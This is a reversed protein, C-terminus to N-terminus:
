QKINKGEEMEDLSAMIVGILTEMNEVHSLKSIMPGYNDENYGHFTAEDFSKLFNVVDQDHFVFQEKIARLAKRASEVDNVRFVGPAEQYWTRGFILVPKKRLMAELGAKGTITAVAKSKEILVASETNIPVLFTNTITAIKKYFGPFRYDSYQLNGRIKGLKGAKNLRWQLPHEKVYISWNAPLAARLTRLALIQDDYVGGQPNTSKEPQRHLAFYIFPEELNPVTQLSLYEKRINCLSTKLFFYFSDLFHEYNEVYSKWFEKWGNLRFNRAILFLKEGLVLGPSKFERGTRKMYIPKEALIPNSQSKYYEQIDKSLDEASFNKSYNINIRQCLMHNKVFTDRYILMRDKILSPEVLIIKKGQKKALSYIVHDYVVHPIASFIFVDPKVEKIVGAWFEVLEHYLSKRENITMGDFRRSLMGLTMLEECSLDNLAQEGLPKVISRNFQPPLVNKVCSQYEHFFGEYGCDEAERRNNGVWYVIEHGKERFRALFDPVHKIQKSYYTPWFLFIRM